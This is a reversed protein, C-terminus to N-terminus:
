FPLDDEDEDADLQSLFQTERKIYCMGCTEEFEYEFDVSDLSGGDDYCPIQYENVLVPKGCACLPHCVNVM